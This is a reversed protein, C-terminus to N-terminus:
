ETITLYAVHARERQLVNCNLLLNLLWEKGSNVLLQDQPLSWVRRMAKRISRAHGCGVLADYSDEDVTDYIPCTGHLVQVEYACLFLPVGFLIGFRVIKKLILVRCGVLLYNMM